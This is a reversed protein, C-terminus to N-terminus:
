NTETMNTITWQLMKVIAKFDKDPLELKQKMKTKVNISKKKRMRKPIEQKKSNPTTKSLVKAIKLIINHSESDLFSVM